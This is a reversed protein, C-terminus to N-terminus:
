EGKKGSPRLADQNDGWVGRLNDSGVRGLLTESKLANEPPRVGDLLFGQEPM